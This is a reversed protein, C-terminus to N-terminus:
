PCLHCFFVQAWGVFIHMIARTCLRKYLTKRGNLNETKRRKQGYFSENHDRRNGDCCLFVTFFM